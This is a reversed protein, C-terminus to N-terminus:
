WSSDRRSLDYRPETSGYTNKLRDRYKGNYGLRWLLGEEVWQIARNIIQSKKRESINITKPHTAENRINVFSEIYRSDDYGRNETVGIQTLLHTIKTKLNGWRSTNSHETLMTVSLRELAAGIANAVVPLPKGSQANQPQIAQFYWTLILDFLRYM